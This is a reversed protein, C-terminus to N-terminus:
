LRLLLRYIVSSIMSTNNFGNKNLFIILRYKAIEKKVTLSKQGKTFFNNLFLINNRALQTSMFPLTGRSISGRHIRYNVTAIPLLYFRHGARMLSLWLPFDELFPFREDFGGFQIIFSRNLFMSPAAIFNGKKLMTKYQDEGKNLMFYKIVEPRPYVGARNAEIFENKYKDSYSQLLNIHPHKKIFNINLEICNDKLSDDAAIYKIWTGTAANLAKNANAAVGANVTNRLLLTKHILHGNVSLWNECISFTLDASADDSIILEINKYTQRLISNLTEEVYKESNYSIVAITVLPSATM